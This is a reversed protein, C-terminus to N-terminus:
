GDFPGAGLDYMSGHQFAPEQLMNMAFMSNGADPFMGNNLHTSDLYSHTRQQLTPEAHQSITPVTPMSLTNHELKVTPSTAIKSEPVSNINGLGQALKKAEIMNFQHVGCNCNQHDLAYTRLQAVQARLQMEERKLLSNEASLARHDSEITEMHERKKQRCKAAAVKNKARSREKQTNGDGEESEATSYQRQKKRVRKGPENAHQQSHIPNAQRRVPVNAAKFRAPQLDVGHKPEETDHDSDSTTGAQKQSTPTPPLSADQMKTDPSAIPAAGVQKIALNTPNIDLAAPYSVGKASEDFIFDFDPDFDADHLSIPSLLHLPTHPLSLDQDLVLPAAAFRRM